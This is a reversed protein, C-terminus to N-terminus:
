KIELLYRSLDLSPEAALMWDFPDDATGGSLLYEAVAIYAIFHHENTRQAILKRNKEIPYFALSLIEDGYRARLFGILMKKSSGNGRSEWSPPIVTEELLPPLEALKLVDNDSMGAQAIKGAKRWNVERSILDGFFSKLNEEDDIRSRPTNEEILTFAMHLAEGTMSESFYQSNDKLVSALTLSPLPLSSGEELVNAAVERNTLRAIAVFGPFNSFAYRQDASVALRSQMYDFLALRSEWDDTGRDSLYATTFATPAPLGKEELKKAFLWSEYTFILIDSVKKCTDLLNHKSFGDFIPNLNTLIEEQQSEDLMYPVEVTTLYSLELHIMDNSVHRDSYSEQM